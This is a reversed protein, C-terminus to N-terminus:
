LSTTLVGHPPACIIARVQVAVSAQPFLMLQVWVIVTSSVIGGTRVQGALRVTSHPLESSGALMPPAVAVSLQEVFTAM